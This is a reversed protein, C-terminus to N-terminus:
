AETIWPLDIEREVILLSGGISAPLDVRLYGDGTTQVPIARETFYQFTKVLDDAMLGYGAIFPLDPVHIDPFYEDLGDEDCIVIGGRDLPVRMAHNSLRRVGGRDCYWAYRATVKEVDEVCIIADRLGTVGNPQELWRPQWVEAESHHAIFQMVGEPMDDDRLRCITFDAHGSAGNALPVPRSVEMLPIPHFGSLTLRGQVAAQDPSSFSLLHLGTYRDIEAQTQAGLTTSADTACMVEIYGEALMVCRNATGTPVPEGGGVATQQHLTYPTLLFGYRELEKQAATMDPVYHALHDLFVEDANPSQRPEDM